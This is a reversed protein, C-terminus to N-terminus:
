PQFFLLRELPATARRTRAPPVGRAAPLSQMYEMEYQGQVRDRLEKVFATASANMELPWILLSSLTCAFADATDFRISLPTGSEVSAELFRARDFYRPKIYRHWSSQGPLDESDAHAFYRSWFQELDMTQNISAGGSVVVSRREWNQYYEWYGADEMVFWVGYRGPPLHFNLGGSEFAIWDRLLDDPHERDQAAAGQQSTNVIGYGRLPEDLTDPYLGTFTKLVPGTRPQVDIKLLKPFDHEFPPQPLLKVVGLSLNVAGNNALALRTVRKLDIMRRVKIESKEGVYVEIPM